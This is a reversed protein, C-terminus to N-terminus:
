LLCPGVKNFNRRSPVSALARDPFDASTGYRKCRSSLYGIIVVTADGNINPPHKTISKAGLHTSFNRRRPSKIVSPKAVVCELFLRPQLISPTRGVCQISGGKGLTQGVKALCHRSSGASQFQRTKRGRTVHRGLRHRLSPM